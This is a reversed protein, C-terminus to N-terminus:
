GETVGLVGALASLRLPFAEQGLHVLDHGPGLQHGDDLREPRLALAPPWPKRELGHQPDV